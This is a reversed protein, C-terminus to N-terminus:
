SDYSLRTPVLRYTDEQDFMPLEKKESHLKVGTNSPSCRESECKKNGIEALIM